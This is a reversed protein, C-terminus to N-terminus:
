VEGALSSSFGADGGNGEYSGLGGDGVGYRSIQVDAKEVTRGKQASPPLLNVDISEVGIVRSSGDEFLAVPRGNKDTTFVMKTTPWKKSGPIGVKSIFNQPRHPDQSGMLINQSIAFRLDNSNIHNSGPKLRRQRSNKVYTLELETRNIVEVINGEAM